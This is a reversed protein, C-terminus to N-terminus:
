AMRRRHINAQRAAQVLSILAWALVLACAIVFLEWATHAAFAGGLGFVWLVFLILAGLLFLHVM